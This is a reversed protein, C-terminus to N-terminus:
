RTSLRDLRDDGRVPFQHRLASPLHHVEARERREGAPRIRFQLGSQAGRRSIRVHPPHGEDRSLVYMFILFILSASSRRRGPQVRIRGNLVPYISRARHGALLPMFKYLFIFMLLSFILNAAMAWSPMEKAKPNKAKEEQQVDEM